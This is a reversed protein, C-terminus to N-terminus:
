FLKLTRFSGFTLPFAALSPLHWTRRSYACYLATEIAKWWARTCSSVHRLETLEKATKLGLYFSLATKTTHVKVSLSVSTKLSVWNPLAKKSSPFIPGSSRCMTGRKEARCERKPNSSGGSIGIWLAVGHLPSDFCPMKELWGSLLGTVEEIYLIEM